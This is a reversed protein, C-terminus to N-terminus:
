ASPAVSRRVYQDRGVEHAAFYRAHEHSRGAFSRIRGRVATHHRRGSPDSRARDSRNSAPRHHRRRPALPACRRTSDRAAFRPVFHRLHIIEAGVSLAALLQARESPDAQDPLALFRGYMRNEWDATTPLQRAVAIRRLDRLALALLRRTRVAPSLPPLLAFALAAVACGVFTALASNYFQATDYSMPNTPALLPLFVFAITTFM